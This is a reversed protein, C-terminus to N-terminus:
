YLKIWVGRAHALTLNSTLEPDADDGQSEDANELTEFKQLIKVM